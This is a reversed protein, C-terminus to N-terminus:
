HQCCVFLTNLLTCVSKCKLSAKVKKVLIWDYFGSADERKWNEYGLFEDQALAADQWEAHTKSSRMLKRLEGKKGRWAIAYEIVNVIQRIIVYAAFEIFITIFIAILLPWRLTHYVFGERTGSDVRKKKRHIKERVPAFDSAAAIRGVKRPNAAQTATPEALTSTSSEASPHPQETVPSRAGPSRPSKAGPAAGAGHFGLRSWTSSGSLQAATAPLYEDQGLDYSLAERFAEVHDM